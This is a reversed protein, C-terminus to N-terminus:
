VERDVEPRLMGGRVAHQTENELEVALHDLADVRMDPQEMAARLLEDLILVVQLRQGIEVPEVVDRWHILLMCEAERCFLQELYRHRLAALQYPHQEALDAPQEGMEEVDGGLRQIDAGQSRREPSKLLAFLEHNEVLPGRAGAHVRVIEPDA